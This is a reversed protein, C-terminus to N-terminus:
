RDDCVMRAGRYLGLRLLLAILAIFRRLNRFDDAATAAPAATPGKMQTLSELACHFLAGSFPAVSRTSRQFRKTWPSSSWYRALVLFNVSFYPMGTRTSLSLQSSTRGFAATAALAPAPGSIM